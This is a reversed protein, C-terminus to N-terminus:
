LLNTCFVRSEPALHQSPYPSCCLALWNRFHVWEVKQQLYLLYFCSVRATHGSVERKRWFRSMKIKRKRRCYSRKCFTMFTPIMMKVEGHTLIPKRPATIQEDASYLRECRLPKHRCENWRKHKGAMLYSVIVSVLNWPQKLTFLGQLHFCYTRGFWDLLNRSMTAWFLTISM